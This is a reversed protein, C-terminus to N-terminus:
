DWEVRVHQRDTADKNMLTVRFSGPEFAVPEGNITVRVNRLDPPVFVVTPADTDIPDYGLEFRGEGYEIDPNRGAIRQPYVYVLYRMQGGPEGNGELLGFGGKDYSWYSWGLDYENMLDFFDTLYAEYGDVAASIGFEGFMLPTGFRNAELVRQRVTARLLHKGTWTYPRGEHCMPDYYHPYYVCDSDPEFRLMSPLAVTAVVIPEFFLPTKFGNGRRMAQIDEYFGTLYKTEFQLGHCPWPENMIDLGVVNPTGDIKGLLYEVMTVYSGKLDDSRWFNDFATGMARTFYNLNWPHLRTFPVGGDDTAWDPFGHSDFRRGYLDQHLDVIVDIGLEDLWGFRELASAIYADDYVGKEPEVAEWFMLYRVHNFGWERMRALDERSQWPLHNPDGKASGSVNVGHYIVIRGDEDIIHAPRAPRTCGALVTAAAVILVGLRVIVRM